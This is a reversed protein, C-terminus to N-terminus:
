RPERAICFVSLQSSRTLPCIRTQIGSNDSRRIRIYREKHCHINNFVNVRLIGLPGRLVGTPSKKHDQRLYLL